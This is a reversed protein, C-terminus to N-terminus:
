HRHILTLAKSRTRAFGDTPTFTLRFRVRAHHRKKLTKNAEIKPRITLNMNGKKKVKTQIVRAKKGVLFLQGPGPFHVALRATGRRKNLSVRGFRFINSPPSVTITQTQAALASGNCFATQGTFVLTTSCGENDTTTLTAQYTGAASYTHTAAPTASTNLGPTGDGFAWAYGTVQGDPDTSASANFSAPVGATAAAVAFSAIPPQNPTIAIGAPNAGVTIPSGVVSNTTTSIVSVNDADTNSVYARSGNPTIAITEPEAGVEVFEIVKNTTTNIVSVSDSGHNVVYARSGDPSIAIGEPEVGVPISGVVTDTATDIVSVTESDFNVVYLRSGDPSIAIGEPDQGVMIPSGVVTDTATDIVSVDNDGLNAVYVRSGDPAIAVGEPTKGVMIPLGLGAGTATDIVSVDKSESNTVYARGGDPAIAIGEPRTGVMVPPGVVTNTATDIVSVDNENSNLVFAQSGNPTIAMAGPSNGVLIPSGVAANTATDIVSVDNENRNAVYAERAFASPALIALLLAALAGGLILPRLGAGAPRIEKV